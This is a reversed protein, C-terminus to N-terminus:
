VILPPEATHCCTVVFPTHEEQVHPRGVVSETSPPAVVGNSLARTVIAPPPWVVAVAEHTSLSLDRGAAPATPTASATHVFGLAAFEQGPQPVVPHAGVHSVLAAAALGSDVLQGVDCQEEGM